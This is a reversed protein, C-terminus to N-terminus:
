SKFFFTMEACAHTSAELSVPVSRCGLRPLGATQKTHEPWTALLLLLSSQNRIEGRNRSIPLWALSIECPVHELPRRPRTQSLCLFIPSKFFFFGFYYVVSKVIFRRTVNRLISLWATRM